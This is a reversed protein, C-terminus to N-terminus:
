MQFVIFPRNWLNFLAIFVPHDMVMVYVVTMKLQLAMPSVLVTQVLHTIVM